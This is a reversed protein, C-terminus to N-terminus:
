AFARCPRRSAARWWTAFGSSAGSRSSARRACGGPASGYPVRAPASRASRRQTGIVRQMALAGSVADFASPFEALFNDGTFDVLRGWHERVLAAIQEGSLGRPHPRHAGRGGCGTPRLRSRRREPHRRAAAPPPGLGRRPAYVRAMISTREMTACTL